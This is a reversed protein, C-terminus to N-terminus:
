DLIEPNSLSPYPQSGFGPISDPNTFDWANEVLAESHAPETIWPIAGADPRLSGSRAVLGVTPSAALEAPPAGPQPVVAVPGGPLVEHTLANRDPHQVPGQAAAMPGGVLNMAVVLAIRRSVAALGTNVQFAM